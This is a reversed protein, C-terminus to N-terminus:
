PSAWVHGTVEVSQFRYYIFKPYKKAEQHLPSHDGSDHSGGLGLLFIFWESISEM